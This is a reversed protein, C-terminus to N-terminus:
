GVSVIGRSANNVEQQYAATRFLYAFFRTDVGDFPRAVAYAPSVLGDVPVRGVAGQWMHMMNYAIDGEAARKYKSRNAMVQKRASEDFNRVRVGTNLSVELIPLDFFDTQNRQIFLRGNRAVDWHTPIERLWPLGSKKYKGYPQLRDIVALKERDPNRLAQGIGTSNRSTCSRRAGELNTLVYRPNAGRDSHEAKVIVWRKKDWTKAKYQFQGFLRV